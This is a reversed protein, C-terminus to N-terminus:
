KVVVTLIAEYNVAFVFVKSPSSGTNIDGFSGESVQGDSSRFVYVRSAAIDYDVTKSGAATDYSIRLIVSSLDNNSKISAARGLTREKTGGVEKRYSGSLLSDINEINNIEGQSNFGLRVISGTGIKSIFGEIAAEDAFRYEVTKSDVMGTLKHVIEQEGNLADRVSSVVVPKRADIKGPDDRTMNRYIVFVKEDKGLISNELRFPQIYYKSGSAAGVIKRTVSFGEEDSEEVMEAASYLGANDGFTITQTYGKTKDFIDIFMVSTYDDVFLMNDFSKNFSIYEMNRPPFIEEMTKIEEIVKNANIKVAMPKSIQNELRSAATASDISFGDFLLRKGLLYEEVSAGGNKNNILLLLKNDTAMAKSQMGLLVAFSSKISNYLDEDAMAVATIKGTYNLFYIGEAGIELNAVPLNNEGSVFEYQQEDIKVTMNQTSMETLKGRVTEDSVYINLLSGEQLVSVSIIQFPRLDEIALSIGNKDKISYRLESRSLDIYTDGMFSVSAAENHAKLKIKASAVDVSDIMFHQFTNVFVISYEGTSDPDILRIVADDLNFDSVSPQKAAGNLLMTFGDKLHITTDIKEDSKQYTINKLDASQVDRSDIVVEDNYGPEKYIFKIASDDDTDIYYIVRYGLLDDLGDQNARYVSSDIKILDGRSISSAGDLSINKVGTVYGSKKEYGRIRMLESLLTKEQNIKYQADKAGLVAEMIGVNMTNGLLNVIDIRTANNQNNKISMGKLMQNEAAVVLYGSPYGGKEEAVFSYGIASVCIKVAQEYTVFDDPGFTGDGYGNVIGLNNAFAISGSAWHTAPVDDFSGGLGDLSTEDVGLVRTILTCFEARTIMNNPRFTNDEYGQIIGLTLMESVVKTSEAFEGIDTPMTVAYVSGCLLFTIMMFAILRKM